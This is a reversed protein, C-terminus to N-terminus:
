EFTGIKGVAIAKIIDLTNNINLNLSCAYEKIFIILHKSTTKSYRVYYPDIYLGTTIGTEPSITTYAVTSRYSQFIIKDPTYIVFQNKNHLQEVFYKKDRSFGM